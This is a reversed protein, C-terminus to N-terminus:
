IAEGGTRFAYGLQLSLLRISVAIVPFQKFSVVDVGNKDTRGVMPMAKLENVSATRPFIYIYLLRKRVADGFAVGHNRSGALLAAALHQLNSLLLAAVPEPM